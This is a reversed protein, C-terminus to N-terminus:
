EEAKDRGALGFTNAATRLFPGKPALRKTLASVLSDRSTQVGRRALAEVLASVHMPRAAQILVDLSAETHSTSKSRGRKKAAAPLPGLARARRVERLAASLMNDLVELLKASSDSHKDM